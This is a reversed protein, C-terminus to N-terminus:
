LPAKAHEASSIWPDLEELHAQCPPAPPSGHACGGPGVSGLSQSTCSSPWPLIKWLVPVVAPAAQM